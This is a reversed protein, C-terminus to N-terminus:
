ALAFCMLKLQTKIKREGASGSVIKGCGSRPGLKLLYYDSDTMEMNDSVRITDEYRIRIYKKTIITHDIM